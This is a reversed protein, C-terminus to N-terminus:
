VLEVSCSVKKKVRKSPTFKPRLRFGLKYLIGILKDSSFKDVRGRMLESARPQSIDLARMVDSQSWDRQEFMDRMVLMLDARFKMDAADNPDDAILDFINDFELQPM